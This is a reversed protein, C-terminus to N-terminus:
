RVGLVALHARARADNPQLKLAGEFWQRAEAKRGAVAADVGMAVWSPGHRPDIRLAERFHQRAETAYRASQGREYANQAPSVSHRSSTHAQSATPPTTSDTSRFARHRAMMIPEQRPGVPAPDDDLDGFVSRRGRERQDALYDGVLYGALAGSGGGVLAGPLGGIWTGLAAGGVGGMVTGSLRENMRCAPLLAVAALIAALAATRM